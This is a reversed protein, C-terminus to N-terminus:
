AAAGRMWKVLWRSMLGPLKGALGRRVAEDIRARDTKGRKKPWFSWRRRHLADLRDLGMVVRSSRRLAPGKLRSVRM